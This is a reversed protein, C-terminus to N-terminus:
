RANVLVVTLMCPEASRNSWAHNGGRIIATDGPTMLVEDTDTMLYATGSVCTVFDLTATRHMGPHRDLDAHSPAQSQNFDDHIAAMVSRHRIPDPDDPAIELARFIVGSPGPERARVQASIDQEDPSPPYSQTMWLTSRWFYGERHQANSIQNDVVTSRGDPDQGIVYRHFKTMPTGTRKKTM